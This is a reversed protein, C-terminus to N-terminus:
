DTSCISWICKNVKLESYKDLGFAKYKVNKKKCFDVPVYDFVNPCPMNVIWCWRSLCLWHFNIVNWFFLNLLFFFFFQGGVNLIILERNRQTRGFWEESGTHGQTVNVGLSHGQTISQIQLCLATHRSHTVLVFHVTDMKCQRIQLRAM